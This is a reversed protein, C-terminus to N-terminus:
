AFYFAIKGPNFRLAEGEGVVAVTGTLCYAILNGGSQKDFVGIGIIPSWPASAVPFTVAEALSAVYGNPPSRFPLPSSIPAVDFTAAIRTYDANAIETGGINEADTRRMTRFLGLWVREPKPLTYTSDYLHRLIAAEGYDNLTGRFPEGLAIAIEEAVATDTAKGGALLMGKAPLTLAAATDSAKALYVTTGVGTITATATDSAAGTTSYLTFALSARGEVGWHNTQGAEVIFDASTNTSFMPANLTWVGAGNAVATGAMLGGSDYVTVANGPLATGTLTPDSTIRDSPNGTDRLLAITPPTSADAAALLPSQSWHYVLERNDSGDDLHSVTVIYSKGMTLADPMPATWAGGADATVTLSRTELATDDARSTSITAVYGPSFGTGRLRLTSVVGVASQGTILGGDLLRIVPTTFSTSVSPYEGTTDRFNFDHLGTASRGPPFDEASISVATYAGSPATTIRVDTGNWRAALKARPGFGGVIFTFADGSSARVIRSQAVRPTAADADLPFTM